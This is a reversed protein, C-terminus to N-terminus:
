CSLLINHDYEGWREQHERALEKFREAFATVQIQNTTMIIADERNDSYYSKRLGCDIFGYKKYLNRAIVNSPRVELTLVTAEQAVAHEIAGILLLEGLGRGRHSKRVGVSVIHAQDVMYWTGMFGAIFDHSDAGGNGTWLSRAKRVLIHGSIPSRSEDHQPPSKELLPKSVVIYNALRNKLERTFSTPPFLTPFAEVEIEAVQSIDSATLQRLGFRM